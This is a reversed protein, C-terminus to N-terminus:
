NKRFDLEVLSSVPMKYFKWDNVKSQFKSENSVCIKIVFNNMIM